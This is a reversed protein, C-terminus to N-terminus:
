PSFLTRPTVFIFKRRAASPALASFNNMIRKNRVTSLLERGLTPILPAPQDISATFRLWGLLREMTPFCRCTGLPSRATPRWRRVGRLLWSAGKWGCYNIYNVGCEAQMYKALAIMEATRIFRVGGAAQVKNVRKCLKGSKSHLASNEEWLWNTLIRKINTHVYVAACPKNGSLAQM